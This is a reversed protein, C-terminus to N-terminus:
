LYSHSRCMSECECMKMKVVCTFNISDNININDAMAYPLRQDQKFMINHSSQEEHM